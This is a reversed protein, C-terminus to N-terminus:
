FTFFEKFGKIPLPELHEEGESLPQPSTILFATMQSPRKQKVFVRKLKSM